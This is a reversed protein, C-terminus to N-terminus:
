DSNPWTLVGRTSGFGHISGLHKPPDEESIDRILEGGLLTTDDGEPSQIIVYVWAEWAESLRTRDVRLFSTAKGSSLAADIVDAVAETIGQRGTPYPYEEIRETAEPSLDLPCLVGEQAGQYCVVGGAQNSYTVGSPYEIILMPEGIDYLVIRPGTTMM